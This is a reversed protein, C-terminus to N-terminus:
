IDSVSFKHTRSVHKRLAERTPCIKRCEKCEVGGSTIHRSEIHNQMNRKSVTSYSCSSCQFGGGVPDIVMHTKIM